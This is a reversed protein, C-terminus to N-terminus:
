FIVCDLFTQHEIHEKFKFKQFNIVIIVISCYMDAFITCFCVMQIESVHQNLTFDSKRDKNTVKM